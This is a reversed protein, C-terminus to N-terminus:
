CLSSPTIHKDKALENKHNYNLKNLVVKKSKIFKKAFVIKAETKRIIKKKLYFKGLKKQKM